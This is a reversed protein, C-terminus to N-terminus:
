FSNAISSKLFVEGGLQRLDPRAERGAGLYLQPPLVLRPNPLLVLDGPAPRALSRAGRRQAVLAGFPGVDEAGDAGGFALAGPQDHRPAVDRRHRRMQDLDALGDIRTGV